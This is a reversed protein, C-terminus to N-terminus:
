IDFWLKFFLLFLFQSLSRYRIQDVVKNTTRTIKEWGCKMVIIRNRMTDVWWVITERTLVTRRFLFFTLILRLIRGNSSISWWLLMCAHVEDHQGDLWIDGSIQLHQNKFNTEDCVIFVKYSRDDQANLRICGSM